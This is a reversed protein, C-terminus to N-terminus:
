GMMSSKDGLLVVIDKALVRGNYLKDSQKLVSLAEVLKNTGIDFLQCMDTEETIKNLHIGFSVTYRSEVLDWLIYGDASAWFNSDTLDLPKQCAGSSANDYFFPIGIPGLIIVSPNGRNARNNALQFNAKEEFM